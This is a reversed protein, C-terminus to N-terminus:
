RGSRADDYIPAGDLSVMKFYVFIENDAAVAVVNTGNFPMAVVARGFQQDNEPQADYITAAPTENIGATSDLPFLLVRGAKTDEVVATPYGAIVYKKAGTDLIAATRLDPITITAGLATITKASPDIAFYGLYSDASGIDKHGVAIFHTPDVMIIQSGKGPVFTTALSTSGTLPQQTSACTGVPAPGNFVGGSYLLLKGTTGGSSGWVVLDDFTTSTM